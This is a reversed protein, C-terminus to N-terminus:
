MTASSALIVTSPFFAETEEIWAPMRARTVPLTIERPLVVASLRKSAVRMVARVLYVAVDGDIAARPGKSQAPNM